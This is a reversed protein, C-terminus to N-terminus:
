TCKQSGEGEEPSYSMRIREKSTPLVKVCYSGKGCSTSVTINIPSVVVFPLVLSITDNTLPMTKSIKLSHRQIKRTEFDDENVRTLGESCQTGQIYNM